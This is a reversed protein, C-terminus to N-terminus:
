RRGRGRPPPSSRRPPPPPSPRPTPRPPPPAPRPPPPPPSPKPTPKPAPSPSLRPTPRPAPPPSPKPAPAAVAPALKPGGLLSGFFGAVAGVGSAIANKAAGVGDAVAKVGSGIANVTTAAVNKVVTAASKVVDVVKKGIAVATDVVAKGASVVVNTVSAVAAKGTEVVSRGVNTAVNTVTEVARAAFRPVEQVAQVITSAAQSTVHVVSSVVAGATEKAATVVNTVAQSAAAVVPAVARVVAKTGYGIFAIATKVVVKGTDITKKGLAAVGDGLSKVGSAAAAIGKKVVDVSGGIISSARDVLFGGVKTGFDLVAGGAAKTWQWATAAAGKVTDWAKTATAVIEDWSRLVFSVGTLALSAVFLIGALAGFGTGGVVTASTALAAIGAVGSAAVLAGSLGDLFTAIGERSLGEGDGWIEAFRSFSGVAQLTGFVIGVAGLIPGLVKAFPALAKAIKGGTAAATPFKAEIAAGMREVREIVPALKRSLAADTKVLFGADDLAQAPRLARGAVSVTGEATALNLGARLETDMLIPPKESGLPSLPPKQHSTQSALVEGWTKATGLRAKFEIPISEPLPENPFHVRATIKNIGEDLAVAARTNDVTVLGKETKVVDIPQDKLWGFQRISARLREAGGEGGASTQSWLLSRPNIEIITGAELATGGGAIMASGIVTGAAGGFNGVTTETKNNSATNQDIPRLSSQPPPVFQTSPRSTSQPPSFKAADAHLIDGVFSWFLSVCVLSILGLASFFRYLTQRHFMYKKGKNKAQNNKSVNVGGHNKAM